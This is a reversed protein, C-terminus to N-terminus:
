YLGGPHSAISKGKDKNKGFNLTDWADSFDTAEERTTLLKWESSKDKEFGRKGQKLPAQNMSLLLYKCNTKNFQQRAFAPDKGELSKASVLYKDHHHPAQGIYKITVAWGNLTLVKVVEDRYNTNTRGDAPLATHDHWYNVQKRGHYRYYDCFDQVLKQILEPRKVYMGNLTWDTHDYTQQVVLTNIYSGYDFAIDLPLDDRLDADKRCHNTDNQLKDMDYDLSDLYQYNVADYLHADTINYFCNEVLEFAKNLVEVAFMLDTMTRRLGKVYDWKLHTINDWVDAENYYVGEKSVYWRVENKLKVMERWCEQQENRNSSDIMKIGLAVIRNLKERYDNGDEAYYKGFDDIWKFESGFGASTSLHVSHHLKCKRFIDRNGRNATLSGTELKTRDLTLAEDATISDVNLGRADGPRDQSIIQFLAGTVWAMTNDYSGPKEYCTPWNKPPKQNLVFHVNQYYGIRELSAIVGPLTKTLVQQYTRGEIINKSRPMEFAIKELRWAHGTSKGTGRSWKDVTMPASLLQSLLQPRNPTILRIPLKNATQEM